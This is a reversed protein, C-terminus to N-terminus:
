RTTKKKGRILDADAKRAGGRGTAFSRVRGAAWQHAGVGPRSGSSYYAAEGKEFIDKLARFPIGTVKAINKISKGGKMGKLDKGYKENFQTTWSSKRKKVKLKPRDKGEFISKIQKKRQNDTLSDPLYRKPIDRTEGKYTIKVM